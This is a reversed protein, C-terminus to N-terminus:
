RSPCRSDAEYPVRGTLMEYLTVGASYIDSKEDTYGGRAQEPSLYHASGMVSGDAVMTTSSAARAIGFDTVKAVGEPTIIINHPKIDRHIIRKQACM